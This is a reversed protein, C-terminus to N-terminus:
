RDYEEVKKRMEEVRTRLDAVLNKFREEERLEEFSPDRELYAYWRFGSQVAQELWGLAQGKKGRVVSVRALAYPFFAHESGQGMQDQVM